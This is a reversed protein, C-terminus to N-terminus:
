NDDVLLGRIWHDFCTPTDGLLPREALALLDYNWKRTVGMILEVDSLGATIWRFRPSEKQKQRIQALAM